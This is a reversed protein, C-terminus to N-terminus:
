GYSASWSGANASTLRNVQDYGYTISEQLTNSAYTQAATIRGDNAALSFDYEFRQSGTTLSTLQGLVNYVRTEANVQSNTTAISTPQSSADYVVNSIWPTQAGGPATSNMTKPRGMEDFGYAHVDGPVEATELLDHAGPSTQGTMRGETDFTYSSELFDTGVPYATSYQGSAM